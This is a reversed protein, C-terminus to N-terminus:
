LTFVAPVDNLNFVLDTRSLQVFLLFLTMMLLMPRLNMDICGDQLVFAILCVKSCLSWHRLLFINKHYWLIHNLWGILITTALLLWRKLWTSLNHNSWLSDTRLVFSDLALLRTLACEIILGRKLQTPSREIWLLFDFTLPRRLGSLMRLVM